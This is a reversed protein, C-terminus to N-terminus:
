GIFPYKNWFARLISEHRRALAGVRELVVRVEELDFTTQHEM